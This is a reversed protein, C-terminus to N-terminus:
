QVSYKLWAWDLTKRSIQLEDDDAFANAIMEYAVGLMGMMPLGLAGALSTQM